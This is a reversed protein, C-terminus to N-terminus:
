NRKIGAQGTFSIRRGTARSIIVYDGPFSQRLALVRTMAAKLSQAAEILVPEGNGALKFVDFVGTV